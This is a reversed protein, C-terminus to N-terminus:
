KAQQGKKKFFSVVMMVFGYIGGAAAVLGEVNDTLQTITVDTIDLGFFAVLCACVAAICCGRFKRSLYVPGKQGEEQYTKRLDRLTFILSLKKFM